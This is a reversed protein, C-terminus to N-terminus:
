DNDTCLSCCQNQGCWKKCNCSKDWFDIGAKTSTNEINMESKLQEVELEMAGIIGIKNM